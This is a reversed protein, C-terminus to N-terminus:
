DEIGLSRRIALSIDAHASQAVNSASFAAQGRLAACLRDHTSASDRHSERAEAVYQDRWKAQQEHLIATYRMMSEVLYRGM